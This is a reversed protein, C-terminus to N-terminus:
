VECNVGKRWVEVPSTVGVDSELSQKLQPSTALTLDARNHLRRLYFNTVSVMYPLNFPRYRKVYEPLNTHFSYVLPIKYRWAYYAAPMMLMGPSSVHLIDPKFTKLMKGTAGGTDLSLTVAPYQPLAFGKINQIPFGSFETPALKSNDATIVKVTDGAKSLHTLTERFRNAYGSVYNFPTPEVLYAIKLPKTDFSNAFSYINFVLLLLLLM